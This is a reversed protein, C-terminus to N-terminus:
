RYFSKEYSRRVIGSQLDAHVIIHLRWHNSQNAAFHRRSTDIIFARGSEFPITGHDLFQVVCDAPHEIAINCEFLQSNERDQHPMIYGGPELWMFRVRQCNNSQWHTRVFETTRPCQDAIHTWIMPGQNGTTATASEGHLCLSYWGQNSYGLMTDQDRHQVRQEFVGAAEQIIEQYPVKIDLELWPLGSQKLIWDDTPRYRLVSQILPNM